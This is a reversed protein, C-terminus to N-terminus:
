RFLRSFPPNRRARHSFGVDAYPFLISKLGIPLDPEHRWIRNLNYLVPSGSSARSRAEACFLKRARYLHEATTLFLHFVALGDVPLRIPRLIAPSLRSPWGHRFSSPVIELTEVTEGTEYSIPGVRPSFFSERNLSLKKNLSNSIYRVVPSNYYFKQISIM